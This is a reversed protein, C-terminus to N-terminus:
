SAAPTTPAPLLPLLRARERRSFTIRDSGLPVPGGGAQRLASAVGGHPLTAVVKSPRGTLTSRSLVAVGRDAVAVVRPPRIWSALVLLLIVGPFLLVGFALGVVFAVGFLGVLVAVPTTMRAHARGLVVGDVSSGPELLRSSREALKRRTRESAEFLGM